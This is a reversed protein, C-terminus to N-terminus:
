SDPTEEREVRDKFAHKYILPEVPRGDLRAFLYAQLNPYTAQTWLAFEKRTDKPTREYVEEVLATIRAVTEQIERAWGDFEGAFEDPILERAAELTGAQCVELTHKFSLGSILRHLKLYEEGKFKFRQGDAFEAVYGEQNSTLHHRHALIDDVTNFDYYIPLGFGRRLGLGRVSPWPWHEGTMRDRAGILILGAMAGYDVIVRNEPYVIEFLLTVSDPLNFLDYRPSALEETAWLAQKSDFRGRTAIKYEGNDRYLIGLSGDVKETVRVLPATSCLGGLEGWNFFKDFPRAVVEGTASNLILGRSVREFFNWRGAYQAKSTYYFLVLDGQRVTAVDGLERWNTFGEVLLRQIDAISQIETM